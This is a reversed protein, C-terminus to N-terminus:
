LDSTQTRCKFWEYIHRVGMPTAPRLTADRRTVFAQVTVIGWSYIVRKSHVVINSRMYFGDNYSGHVMLM